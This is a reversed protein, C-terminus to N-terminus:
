RQRHRSMLTWRPTRILVDRLHKLALPAVPTFYPAGFSELTVVHILIAIMGVSLGYMGFTGALLLLGFRLLRFPTGFSYRPIAFSAIGTMSVVIVIPASVLNTRVAAEGIVLAGIISVIPGLQSPMRLGAEQLGEFVFEGCATEIVTPFPAAERATAISQMLSGPLMDPNYTTVAVYVAPLTLSTMVMVYRVFRRAIVYSFREYYDDPSQLGAWFSIPLILAFPTGDVLIAVKGELLHAVTVDPRETDGIQPFPSLPVPEISETIYASDIVGKQKMHRIKERVQQIVSDVALGDLYAMACDTHTLEGITFSEIKLRPNAIRRRLLVTNTRLSETFSDKPGRVSTETKPQEVARKEFGTLTASLAHDEGEALIAVNAKLVSDIVMKVTTVTQTQAVAVLQQELMKGPKRRNSFSDPLESVIWPKIVNEELVKTDVMGDVYVILIRPQGPVQISRFVVDSCNGLIDRLIQENKAVNASLPDNYHSPIRDQTNKATDTEKQRRRFLAM